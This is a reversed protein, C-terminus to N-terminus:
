PTDLQLLMGTDTALWVHGADAAALTARNAVARYDVSMETWLLLDYSRYVRIREPCPSRQLEGPADISVLYAPGRPPLLVDTVSRHKTRFARASQGTTLDLRYVESSFPFWDAFEILALGTGEPRMRVRTIAGFMSSVQPKWSKGGDHTEILLSLTPHELRRKAALPDMWDPFNSTARTPPRSWGTVMGVNPTAFDIWDFTTFAATTKIPATTDVPKWTAGGDTTQRFIKWRGVAWGRKPDTFHVRLLDPQRSIKRWSRGSEETKWVGRATVMWGRSDDLFFLSVGAERVPVLAWHTGGDSTVLVVPKVARKTSLVGSAIGRAPSPFQLDTFTLSSEDEDHFYKVRWKPSSQAYAGVAAGLLLCTLWCLARRM